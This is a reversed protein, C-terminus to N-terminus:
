LGTWGLRSSELSLTDVVDGPLRNWNRVLRIVFVKKRINLRFGGEKLKFGNEGTRDCFVRSFSRDGEKKYGGKPYQFGM